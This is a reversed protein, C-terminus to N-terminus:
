RQFLPPPKGQQSPSQATVEPETSPPAVYADDSFDGARYAHTTYAHDVTVGPWYEGRDPFEEFVMMYRLVYPGDVGRDHLIKGFFTLPVAQRGVDLSVANQAFCIASADDSGYLSAIVKYRGAAHVDVGARVVLSGADIAEDFEGDLEAGPPPTYQVTGGYHRPGLGDPADFVVEVFTRFRGLAQQEDASPTFRATYSHNGDDVFPAHPGTGTAATARESRFYAVGNTIPLRKGHADLVRLDIVIPDPPHVVDFRPGFVVHIGREADVTDDEPVTTAPDSAETLPQSGPPYPAPGPLAPTAQLAEIREPHHSAPAPLQAPAEAPARAVQEPRPPPAAPADDRARPWLWWLVLAAALLAGALTLVRRNRHM